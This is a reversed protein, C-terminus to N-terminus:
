YDESEESEELKELEDQRRKKGNLIMSFVEEQLERYKDVDRSEHIYEPGFGFHKIHKATGSSSIERCCLLISQNLHNEDSIKNKIEYFIELDDLVNINFQFVGQAYIYEANTNEHMLGICLAFCKIDNHLLMKSLSILDVQQHSRRIPITM